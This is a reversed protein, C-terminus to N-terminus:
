DQSGVAEAVGYVDMMGQVEAVDHSLVAIDHTRGDRDIVHGRFLAEARFGLSEFVAVAARQDLTMQVTLKKLGLGIAMAFCEQVLVQGAGKGRLGPHLLVRLEGVHRSWTMDETVIATCGVVRGADRLVLSHVRGAGVAKMWAAIVKPNSIDRRLFLLDHAPLEAVFASLAAGDAPLMRAIELTAGDCPFTRPYRDQRESM